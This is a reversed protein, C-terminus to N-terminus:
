SSLGLPRVVPGRRRVVVPAPLLVVQSYSLRVLEQTPALIQVVLVQVARRNLEWGILCCSTPAKM